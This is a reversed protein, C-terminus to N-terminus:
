DKIFKFANTHMGLDISMQQYNIISGEKAGYLSLIKKVEERTLFAGCQHCSHEFDDKSVM